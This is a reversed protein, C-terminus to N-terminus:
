YGARKDVVNLFPEGKRFREFNELFCEMARELWDPTHDAIHPSLLLNDLEYFPHGDPLPERDYVDLAAGRILKERLARILPEEAVVPGRGLNILVATSKMARLQAEGVMGRTESTLPVSIVAYDSLAMLEELAEPPFVRDLLPDGSSRGPRRRLAIVKMGLPKAREACARGIDGYGIIGLTAGHIEEVDFQDWVGAEQSLVMRRLDKAFFLIAALVFESLPRSFVGRANTVPVASEVLAPFLLDELGASRSHIWRVKPSIAWVQELLPRSASWNLIADARPAASRFADVNNGCAIATSDPLRALMRLTPDAPDALVLLTLGGM